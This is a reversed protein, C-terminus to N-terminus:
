PSTLLGVRSVNGARRDLGLERLLTVAKAHAVSAILSELDTGNQKALATLCQAQHPTLDVPIVPWENIEGSAEAADRKIVDYTIYPALAHDM